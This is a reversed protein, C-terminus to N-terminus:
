TFKAADPNTREQWFSRHFCFNSIEYLGDFGLKTFISYFPVFISPLFSAQSHLFDPLRVDERHM